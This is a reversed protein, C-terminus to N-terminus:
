KKKKDLKKKYFELEKGELIYGDARGCQGPRSSICALLRGGTFQEELHADLSQHLGRALRATIAKLGSKTPATEAEEPASVKKKGLEVAYRQLYWNKFPTADVLVITNKVIQNTRVLENSTANYVTAIIKSKFSIESFLFVFIFTCAWVFRLVCGVWIFAIWM